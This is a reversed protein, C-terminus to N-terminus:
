QARPTHGTSSMRIAELNDYVEYAVSVDHMWAHARAKKFALFSADTSRVIFVVYKKDKVKKLDGLFGSFWDMQTKAGTASDSVDPVENVVAGPKKQIELVKIIKSMLNVRYSDNEVVAASLLNLYKTRDGGAQTALEDLKKSALADLGAVDVFSLHGAGDIEVYVPDRTPDNEEMPTPILVKTKKTDLVILIIVLMLIGSLSTMIDNFSDNPDYKQTM